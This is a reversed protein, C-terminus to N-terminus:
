DHTVTKQEDKTPEGRRKLSAFLMTGLALLIEDVFPLPDPVILTLTFLAATVALLWPFRLRNAWSLLPALLFRTM